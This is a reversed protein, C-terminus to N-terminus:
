EKRCNFNVVFKRTGVDSTTYLKSVLFNGAPISSSVVHPIIYDWQGNGLMCLGSDPFVYQEPNCKITWTALVTEPVSETLTILGSVVSEVYRSFRFNNSDDYFEVAPNEKQLFNPDYLPSILPSITFSDTGILMGPHSVISPALIMGIDCYDGLQMNQWQVNVGQIASSFPLQLECVKIESAEASTFAHGVKTPPSDNKEIIKTSISEEASPSNDHLAILGGAPGTADGDLTTKEESSLADKFVIKLSDGLQSIYSLAKTISSSMIENSLKAHNVQGGPFDTIVSYEYTTEAM